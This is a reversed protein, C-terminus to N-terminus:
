SIVSHTLIGVQSTLLKAEVASCDRKAKALAKEKLLVDQLVILTHGSCLPFLIGEAEGRRAGM